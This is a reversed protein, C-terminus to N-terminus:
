HTLSSFNQDPLSNSFLYSIKEFVIILLTYLKTTSCTSLMCLGQISAKYWFNLCCCCSCFLLNRSVTAINEKRFPSWFNQFDFHQYIQTFKLTALILYLNSFPPWLDSVTNARCKCQQPIIFLKYFHFKNPMCFLCKLFWQITYIILPRCVNMMWIFLLMFIYVM